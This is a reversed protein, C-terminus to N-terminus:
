KGHDNWSNPISKTYETKDTCSNLSHMSKKGVQYLKFFYVSCDLSRALSLNLSLPLNLNLYNNIAHCAGAFFLSYSLFCNWIKRRRRRRSSNPIFTPTQEIFLFLWCFFSFVWPFFFKHLYNYIHMNYGYTILNQYIQSTSFLSSCVGCAIGGVDSLWQATKKAQETLSLPQSIALQERSTCLHCFAIATLAIAQACAWAM